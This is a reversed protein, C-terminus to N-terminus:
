GFMLLSPKFLILIGLILMVIGGALGVRLIIKPNMAKMKFTTLAIVLIVIEYIEFVLVYLLLYAYYQWRPVGSLTLVQTYIAPLGASCLLKFFNVSVAVVIIGALALWIKDRAVISKVQSFLKKREEENMSRCAKDQEYWKKIYHYGSYVAAVGIIIRIWFIFGIFLLVNLWAALVFYYFAGSVLIFASGLILLKKKEQMSILLSILFLLVWLACPNLGDVAAIIVTVVPLSINKADAPGFFPINIKGGQNAPAPTSSHETGNKIYNGVVDTGGKSLYTNIDDQIKRGTTQDDLYGIIIKDGIVTFPVGQVNWGQSVSLGSLFSSNTQNNWIEYSHVFIDQNKSVLANLFAEEKACHPCGEGYFFYVDAKQNQAWTVSPMLFLLIFLFVKLYKIM